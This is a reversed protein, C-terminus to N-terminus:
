YSSEEYVIYVMIFYINSNFNMKVDWMLDKKKKKIGYEFIFFCLNDNYGVKFYLIFCCKFM